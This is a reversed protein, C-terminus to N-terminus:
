CAHSRRIGEVILTGDLGQEIRSLAHDVLGFYGARKMSLEFTVANGPAVVVTQEDKLRPGGGQQVHGFIGRRYSRLLPFEACRCRVLGLREQCAGM